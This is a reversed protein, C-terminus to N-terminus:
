PFGKGVTVYKEPLGQSLTSNDIFLTKGDFAAGANSTHETRRVWKDPTTKEWILPNRIQDLIFQLSSYNLGLWDSFLKTHIPLQRQFSNVLLLGTERSIRGFRIERCVTDTVKSFGQKYYKILDHLDLYNYCDVHDYTEFTRAFAATKYGFKEIMLEHQAKPDWRIYNGLYIGRTGNSMLDREDPYRYQWIDSERLTDFDSLLDDAEYGMLDHDARYRRTMEVNHLHSFMGVQELGQHAGWIILPIKFDVSTQVPFVTQGAICPWYMSGLERLTTRTINKVSVPNINQIIIDVDFQIRLNALNRIGLPTNFYKNNTVLLPNLGLLNKVVHVIFYSDNAGTVPVICDYHKRSTSRYPSVLQRLEEWRESWDLTDKEEHIRCGSCVGDDDVVLGLPHNSNYLCRTCSKM